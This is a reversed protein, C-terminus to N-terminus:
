PTFSAGCMCGVVESKDEFEIQEECMPCKMVKMIPTIIAYEVGLEAKDGMEKLDEELKNLLCAPVSLFSINASFSFFLRKIKKHDEAGSNKLFWRNIFKRELALLDVAKRDEKVHGKIIPLKFSITVMATDHHHKSYYLAGKQLEFMGILGLDALRRNEDNLKGVCHIIDSEFEYLQGQIEEDINDEVEVPPFNKTEILM